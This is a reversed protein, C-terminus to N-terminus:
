DTYAATDIVKVFECKTLGARTIDYDVIKSLTWLAGDFRFFRRMMGEDVALGSLDIWATVVRTDVNYRDEIFAAWRRAYIDVGAPYNVDPIDIEAPRGFDWADTIDDGDYLYRGFLPFVHWGDGPELIWCPTGGNLAAMASLDDTVFFRVYDRDKVTMGRFFLLVNSGDLAKGESEHLQVKPFTDYGKLTNLYTIKSFTSPCPVTAGNNPGGYLQYECGGALFAAPLRYDVGEVTHVPNCFLKNQELVEAAGRFVNGELVDTIDADFDYGTNVRQTGFVRGRLSKYYEAYEGATELGFDYWKSAVAFPVTQVDQSRDVRGDIDVTQGNYFTERTMIHVAGASKEFLFKLGFIKAYSFLYDAPSADTSLLTQKTIHAGSHVETLTDATYEQASLVSTFDTCEDYPNGGQTRDRYLYFVPAYYAGHAPNIRLEVTIDERGLISADVTLDVDPGDWDAKVGDSVFRGAVTDFGVEEGSVSVPTFGSVDALSEPTVVNGDKDESQMLVAKSVAIANGNHDRVVAQLWFGNRVSREGVNPITYDSCLYLPTGAAPASYLWSRISLSMRFHAWLSSNAVNGINQSGTVVPLNNGFDQTVVPVPDIDLAGGSHEPPLTLTDLRPLTIWAKEFYPNQANFFSPDLVVTHGGNNAPNCCAEILKKVSLVPRQMYSRLDKTEWETRDAGLDCLAWGGAAPKAGDVETPLGMDRPVILAKSADFTGEPLGGYTPAFNIIDWKPDTPVPEAALRDWAARVTNANIDFDLEGDTGDLFALDALSKKGDQGAADDERYALSYYFSGLGGYLTVAYGTVIEGRRTVSNLKCYGAELIEGDSMIRFPTRKLANFHIGTYLGPAPTTARDARWFRGFIASNAATGPLTVQQSYSNKVSAPSDMREATYNFLLLAASDLDAALGGIHLTLTRNM